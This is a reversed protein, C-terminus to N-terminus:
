AIERRIADQVVGVLRKAQAKGDSIESLSFGEATGADIAKNITAVLQDLDAASKKGDVICARMAAQLGLLMSNGYVLSANVTSNVDIRAGSM